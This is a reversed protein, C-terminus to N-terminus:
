NTHYQRNQTWKVFSAYIKNKREKGFSRINILILFIQIYYVNNTLFKLISSQNYERYM